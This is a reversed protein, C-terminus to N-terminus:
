KLTDGIHMTAFREPTVKISMTDGNDTVSTLTYIEDTINRAVVTSKVHMKSCACLLLLAFISKKM